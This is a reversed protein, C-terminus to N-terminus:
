LWIVFCFELSSTKLSCNRKLVGKQFFYDPKQPKNLVLYETQLSPHLYYWRKEQRRRDERRKEKM